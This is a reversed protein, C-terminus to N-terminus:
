DTTLYHFSIEMDSTIVGYPLQSCNVYCYDGIVETGQARITTPVGMPVYDPSFYFTTTATYLSVGTEFEVGDLLITIYSDPLPINYIPENTVLKNNTNGSIVPMKKNLLSPKGGLTPINTLESFNITSPEYQTTGSNYKLVKNATSGTTTIRNSNLILGSLNLDGNSLTLTNTSLNISTNGTLNGGLGVINGTKIVGNNATTNASLTPSLIIKTGNFRLVYNDQLISDTVTADIEIDKSKLIGAFNTTGSLTLSEGSLQVIQIDSLHPRTNLNTPM